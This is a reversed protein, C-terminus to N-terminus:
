SLVGDDPTTKGDDLVADVLSVGSADFARNLRIILGQYTVGRADAAMAIADSRNRCGVGRRSPLSARGDERLKQICSLFAPATAYGMILAIAKTPVHAQWLVNLLKIREQTWDERTKRGM